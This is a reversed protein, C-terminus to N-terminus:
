ARGGEITSRLRLLGRHLHTKVTGLPRGTQNAIEGLSLDGFFRLAVVERYPEDLRAVAERVDAAREARLSVTAPDPSGVIDGAAGPNMPDLWTVSRRRQSRRIAIRVAIRTLWAGFPGDERWTGLARFATVFAEQAADEAEHLDGLVRHCARVVAPGEREVLIRFSNRDGAIVRAVVARDDDAVVPPSAESTTITSPGRPRFRVTPSNAAAHRGHDM